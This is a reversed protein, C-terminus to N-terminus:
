HPPCAADFQAAAVHPPLRGKELQRSPIQFSISHLWRKVPESSRVRCQPISRARIAYSRSAPRGISGGFPYRVPTLCHFGISSM